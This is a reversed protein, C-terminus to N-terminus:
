EKFPAYEKGSWNMGMQGSFELMNLRIGHVIVAMFALAINLVHGTFLIVAAVLGSIISNFGIGMVIDNFTGALVVTACGVAFLRLYSVIDAFSSVIKLPINILSSVIAKLINKQPESFCLLLAAGALLLSLAYGPMPRGIVLMGALFYLAWLVLIWGLEALAKISNLIRLGVIVHALTLHIIGITFCIFIMLNQNDAAFSSIDPIILSNLFPLQAIAEAGFWTGTIAGWVITAASLAYMLFFPQGPLRKFRRRIIFTSLLFLMGYGADGVLMAFFLSLFLLFWASIDYEAYGPVTSMFKFVPNIIEIWKPNRILTPVDEIDEPEELLYGAHNSEALKVIDDHRDEPIYGQIYSFGTEEGMGHMAKLFRQKAELVMKHGKIRKLANVQPQLAVSIDAIQKKFAAHKECLSDFSEEPLAISKFSLQTEIRYTFHAIHVYGKERSIVSIDNRDNVKQYERETVQYLNIHIGQAACAKIDDPNFGGWPKYWDIQQSIKDLAQGNIKSQEYLELITDIRARVDIQARPQKHKDAAHQYQCLITVAKEAKDIQAAINSIDASQQQKVAKLHAAGFSRLAKLTEQRKSERIFLTLKKMRVIM